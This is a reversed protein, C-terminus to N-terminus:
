YIDNEYIYESFQYWLEVERQDNKTYRLPFLGGNGARDYTRWVLVDLISEIAKKNINTTDTMTALGLNELMTWFWEKSSRETDWAERRSLAILMELVSCGETLWFPDAELQAARLFEKRLDCGDEARNDDGSLFWVFETRHLEGLLKYYKPATSRKSANTVFACLWNFYLSELPEEM